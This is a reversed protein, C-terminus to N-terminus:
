GGLRALASRAEAAYTLDEDADAFIEVARGYAERAGGADGRQERLKGLRVSSRVVANRM